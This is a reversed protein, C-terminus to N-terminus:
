FIGHFLRTFPEAIIRRIPSPAFKVDRWELMSKERVRLARREEIQTRGFAAAVSVRHVTGAPRVEPLGVARREAFNQVHAIPIPRRSRVNRPLRSLRPAFM